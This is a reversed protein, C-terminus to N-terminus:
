HDEHNTLDCGRRHVPEGHDGESAAHNSTCASSACGSSGVDPSLEFWLTKEPLWVAERRKLPRERLRAQTRPDLATTKTVVRVNSDETMTSYEVPLGQTNIRPVTTTSSLTPPWATMRDDAEASSVPFQDVCGSSPFVCISTRDGSTWFLGHCSGNENRISCSACLTDGLQAVCLNQCNDTATTTGVLFIISAIAYLMSFFSSKSNAYRSVGLLSQV